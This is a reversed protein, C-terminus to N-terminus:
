VNNEGVRTIDFKSETATIGLLYQMLTKESLCISMPSEYVGYFYLNNCALRM